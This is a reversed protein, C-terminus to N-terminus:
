EVNVSGITAMAEGTPARLYEKTLPNWVGIQIDYKGPKADAPVVVACRERLTEGALWRSTPYAGNLPEHEQQFVANAPFGLKRRIKLATDSIFHANPQVFRVRIAYDEAMQRRENWFYDITLTEGPKVSAAALTYGSLELADGFKVSLATQPPTVRALQQIDDPIQASDGSEALLGSLLGTHADSVDVSERIFQRADGWREQQFLLRLLDRQADTAGSDASVVRRLLTEAEASKGLAAEAHAMGQWVRLPLRPYVSIDDVAVAAAGTTEVRFELTDPRFLTVNLTYDRFGGDKAQIPLARKVLVGFQRSYADLRAAAGDQQAAGNVSVRFRAQYEGAPLTVNQGFALFGPVDQGPRFEVVAGGSAGSNPSAAGTNRSLAEAEFHLRTVVLDDAQAAVLPAAVPQQSTNLKQVANRFFAAFEPFQTACKQFQRLADEWKGTQLYAAGLAQRARIHQPEAQVVQTLLTIAQETEGRELMVTAADLPEFALQVRCGIFRPDNLGAGATFKPVVGSHSRVSIPYVSSKFFPVANKLPFVLRRTQLPATFQVTQAQGAVSVDVRNAAAGNMVAVTLFEFPQFFRIALDARREGRVTFERSTQDVVNEDFYYLRHVPTETPPDAQTLKANVNTPLTNLLTLEVPLLRFPLRFAHPAPYTSTQFPNLLSQALFISGVVWAAMLPMLSSLSTILFLFGPYINLFFRNGFAGGGGQYNSPAMYIYAFVSALITLLLFARRQWITTRFTVYAANWALKQSFLWKAFYWLAAFVCPFYPLLGTFRGFVYYYVNHFFVSWSFYFSEDAYDDNSLRIGKEWADGADAFPFAKYFTKRDGAYPNVDGTLVGQLGYFLLFILWFAACILVFRTVANVLIKRRELPELSAARSKFIRMGGELLVDAVIPLIFLVNPLKSAAAVAIPVPALCLRGDSTAFLWRLLTFPASIIKLALPRRSFRYWLDSTEGRQERQYLWLFLGAMVCFMNFTEPTLWFVYIVSASLLFFTMSVLLSPLPPNFQRLYLWGLVIMLFLLLMNLALFGNFGFALLFPALLLSYVFSKSYYIHDNIKRLFVGQPGASWGEEYVRWLDKPAYELDLDHGFSQAMMYYVAEDGFLYNVVRQYEVTLALSFLVAFLALLIGYELRRIQM